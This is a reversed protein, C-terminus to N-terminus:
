AVWELIRLHSGVRERELSAAFGGAVIWYVDGEGAALWGLTAEPAPVHAQPQVGALHELFASTSAQGGLDAFRVRRSGLVVVDVTRGQRTLEEVLTAAASVGWEFAPGAFRSPTRGPPSRLDLLVRAARAVAGRRLVRVPTGLAASRLAHVRAWDDGDRLERLAYFAEGDSRTACEATQDGDLGTSSKAVRLTIRAPEVIATADVAMKASLRILGLPHQTALHFVRTAIRGRGRARLSLDIAVERGTPLHEVLAPHARLSAILGQVGLHLNWVHRGENRVAIREVLAAGARTRRRGVHIAVGDFLRLKAAWDVLLPALLLCAAIRAPESGTTWAAGLALSALVVVARGPPTLDLTTKLKTM